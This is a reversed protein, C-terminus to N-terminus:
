YDQNINFNSNYINITGIKKLEFIDIWIKDGSLTNATKIAEDKNEAAISSVVKNKLVKIEFKKITYNNM